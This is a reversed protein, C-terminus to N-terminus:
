LVIRRIKGDAIGNDKFKQVVNDLFNAPRTLESEISMLSLGCLRDEGMSSRAYTKVRKICSFSRECSATSIPLTLALQYLTLLTPFAATLPRLANAAQLLTKASPAINSFIAKAHLLEVKISSFCSHSYDVAEPKLSCDRFLFDHYHLIMPQVADFSLFQQSTPLLSQVATFFSNQLQGFRKEMESLINDILVLFVSVRNEHEASSIASSAHSELVQETQAVQAAITHRNSSGVTELTFYDQMHRPMRTVRCRRSSANDCDSVSSASIHSTCHIVINNEACMQVVSNWIASWQVSCDRLTRLENVSSNILAVAAALDLEPSQLANSLTYTKLLLKHMIGLLAVFKVDKVQYLYGRALASREASHHTESIVELTQIVAKFVKVFTDVSEYRCSWRTEIVRKLEMPNRDPYLSRQTDLFIPHSTGSSMFVYVAELQAFFQSAVHVAKCVDVLVLNLRHAMCHIYLAM